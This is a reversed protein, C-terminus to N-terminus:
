FLSLMALGLAVGGAYWYQGINRSTARYVYHITLTWFISLPTDPITLVNVAAFFPLVQIVCTATAAVAKGFMDRALRYFIVTSLLGASIAALKVALTTDSGLRTFLAIVYAVMPPHDFYGWSLHKSWEWYYAEAGLLPINGVLLLRVLTCAIIFWILFGTRYHDEDTDHKVHHTM